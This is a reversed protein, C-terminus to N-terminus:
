TNWTPFSRKALTATVQSSDVPQYVWQKKPSFSSDGAATIKEHDVSRIEDAHAIIMMADDGPYLLDVV